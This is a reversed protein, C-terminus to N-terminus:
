IWNKRKFLVYLAVGIILMSITSEWFGWHTGFGPYPINQGFFGTVATPVAIIAAWSTLQKMVQNMRADTLSLNTEFISSIMDRLSETWEAARLVHDYLDEFYPALEANGGDDTARRMVTNVVERMPLIVRRIQVLSKRLQYTERQLEKAERENVEFLRDEIGEIDDDLAEITTFYSDVIVDLLGHILARTGYKILDANDDWRRVVEDIDFNEDARVTVFGRKLSFASVRATILESTEHNHEVAYATMFLHTSYRSAKPREMEAVADEVAHPDLSLEEAIKALAAEDPACIDAWVLCDPEELYDSVLDISFNEAELTGNRWVRTRAAISM